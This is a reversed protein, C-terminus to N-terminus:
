KGGGGKNQTIRIAPLVVKQKPSFKQTNNNGFMGKNGSFRSVAQFPLKPLKSETKAKPM